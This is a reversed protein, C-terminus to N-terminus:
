VWLFVVLRRSRQLYVLGSSVYRTGRLAFLPEYEPFIGYSLLQCISSFMVSGPIGSEDPVKMPLLNMRSQQKNPTHEGRRLTLRLRSNKNEVESLTRSKILKMLCGTWVSQNESILRNLHLITESSLDAALVEPNTGATWKMKRDFVTLLCVATGWPLRLRTLDRM